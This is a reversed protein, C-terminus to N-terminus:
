KCTKEPQRKCRKHVAACFSVVCSFSLPSSTLAVRLSSGLSFKGWTAVPRAPIFGLVPHSLCPQGEKRSGRLPPSNPQLTEWHWSLLECHGLVWVPPYPIPDGTSAAQSRSPFSFTIHLLMASGLHAPIDVLELVDAGCQDGPCTWCHPCSRAVM